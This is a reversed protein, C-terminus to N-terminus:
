LREFKLICCDFENCRPCVTDSYYEDAYECGYDPISDSKLETHLFKAHCNCCEVEAPAYEYFHSPEPVMSHYERIHNEQHVTVQSPPIGNTLLLGDFNEPLESIMATLLWVSKDSVPRGPTFTLSKSIERASSLRAFPEFNEPLERAIWPFTATISHGIHEHYVQRGANPNEKVTARDIKVLFTKVEM